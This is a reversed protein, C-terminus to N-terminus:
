DIWTVEVGKKQPVNDTHDGHSDGHPTDGHANQQKDGLTAIFRAGKSRMQERLFPRHSELHCNMILDVWIYEIMSYWFQCHATKNRWDGDIATGPCQGKCAFFYLCDKCGGYELPTNYLALYREKGQSEAKLWNVGDKNTRGCNVLSGDPAVGQVAQTNIADCANWVCIVQPNENTLLQKIDSFPNIFLKTSKLEDYILRFITFNEENSLELEKKVKPSDTELIHLNVHTIGLDKLWFIFNILDPKANARHITIIISPIIGSHTLFKINAIIKSTVDIDSRPSNLEGWGDISIGVGVKYKKFLEIHDEDLRLGNTQISNSGFQKLGFKFIEELKTKPTLLAEGGFVAFPAGQKTLTEKVRVFALPASINGAIRMNEQYCYKCTLDCSIGNPLYEITM